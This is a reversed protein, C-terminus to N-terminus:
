RSKKNLNLLNDTLKTVDPTNQSRLSPTNGSATPTSIKPSQRPSYSAQLARDSGLRSIYPSYKSALKRAAPSMSNLRDVSLPSSLVPSKLHQKAAQLAKNKRDRYRESVKDALALALKERKPPEPMKFGCDVPGPLIPTDSGDLKFPTGEIQGWTMLPSADVGPAPSPPKVFTFGNVCPTANLTIEKGDVGIKGSLSSIAQTKALGQVAEKNQKEDFPNTHLRTGCHNISMKNRAMQIQEDKTLAVGEPTYMAFNKNVFTWTQIRRDRNKDGANDIQEQMSPLELFNCRNEPAENEGSYLWPYKIRHQKKAYEIIDEFSQNDESTHTSLFEDLSQFKGVSSSKRSSCSSQSRVSDQINAAGAEELSTFHEPTEFTAPSAECRDVYPTSNSYKAYLERLRQVDNLEMADLFDNQAHLKELDPFFDREIIDAIKSLYTEETLVRKTRKKKSPPKTPEKFIDLASNKRISLVKEGVQPSPSDEM